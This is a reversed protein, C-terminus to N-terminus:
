FIVELMSGALGKKCGSMTKGGNPYFDLHGSQQWLGLGFNLLPNADTHIVDVYYADSKDLRFNSFNFTLQM